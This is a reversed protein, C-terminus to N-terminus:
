SNAAIHAAPLQLNDHTVTTFCQPITATSLVMHCPRAHQREIHALLLVLHDTDLIDLLYWTVTTRPFM